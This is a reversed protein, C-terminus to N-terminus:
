LVCFQFYSRQFGFSPSCILSCGDAVLLDNDKILSIQPKKKHLVFGVGVSADKADKADKAGRANFFRHINTSCDKL